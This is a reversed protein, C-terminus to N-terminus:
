DKSMPCCSQVFDSKVCIGNFQPNLLCRLVLVAWRKKDKVHM